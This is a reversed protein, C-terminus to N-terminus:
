PTELVMSEGFARVLINKAEELSKPTALLKQCEKVQLHMMGIKAEIKM